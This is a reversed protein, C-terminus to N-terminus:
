GGARRSPPGFPRDNPGRWRDHWVRQEEMQALEEDTPEVFGAAPVYVIGAADACERHMPEPPMSNRRLVAPEGILIVGMCESCLSAMRAKFLIHDPTEGSM